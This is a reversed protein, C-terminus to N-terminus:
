LRDPPVMGLARFGCDVYHTEGTVATSMDSLLYVATHGIEELEVTDNMASGRESTKFTYRANAIASGALTRMPGASIANVRIKDEGFDKALYRVSAELAAKAVGMVNYNPMVREAGIYTLTIMSGGEKMLAAGRRAVSTFSYCSINMTNTFNELTTDAYRGKLEGKDSFAVAHVIFDLKGWKEKIESFVRDLDSENTVDCQVLFDSGVSEALPAVRKKLAENQYSFAMEAGQDACARAIGWAISRDNAVGMILGKKGNMLKSM